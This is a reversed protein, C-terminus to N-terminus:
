LISNMEHPHKTKLASVLQVMRDSTMGWLSVLLALPSSVFAVAM